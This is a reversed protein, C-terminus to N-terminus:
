RACFTDGRASTKRIGEEQANEGVPFIILGDLGDKCLREIDRRQQEAHEEAFTFIVQYGRSKAAREVGILIEM